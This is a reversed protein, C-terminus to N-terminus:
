RDDDTPPKPPVDDPHMYDALDADDDFQIGGKRHPGPVPRRADRASRADRPDRADAADPPPEDDPLTPRWVRPPPASRPPAAHAGSRSGSGPGSRDGGRIASVTGDDRAAASRRGRDYDDDTARRGRDYGDDAARDRDRDRGRGRDRDYGDDAAGRRGRDRDDDYDDGGARRRGRDYGDDRDDDHRPRAPPRADFRGRTPPQAIRDDPDSPAAADLDDLLQIIDRAEPLEALDIEGRRILELVLEGLSALADQRRRHSRAEDFRSRAGRSIADRVVGAQELTTRLLTGLTGRLEPPRFGGRRQRAM